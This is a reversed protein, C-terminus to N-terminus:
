MGYMDVYETLWSYSNDWVFVLNMTSKLDFSGEILSQHSALRAQAVRRALRLVM